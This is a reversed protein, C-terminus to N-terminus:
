QTNWVGYNYNSKRNRILRVTFTEFSRGFCSISFHIDSVQSTVSRAYYRIDQIEVYHNTFTQQSYADYGLWSNM